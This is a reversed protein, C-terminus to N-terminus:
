SVFNFGGSWAGLNYSGRKTEALLGCVANARDDHAGPAHDISDRGGRSTRRELGVLQAVTVPDPPIEVQGSNFRSLADLYLESKPRASQSCTIGHKKFEDAPWSGAFRDSVIRTIGYSKFLAAYEAVIAAPTGRQGRVLDVVTREGARHGIAMTFEDKGGGAPDAFGHYTTGASCPVELPDPRAASEVVERSLFDSVDERFLGLWEARAGQPDEALAEEVVEAPLTPNFDRSAGQVVLVDGPKGYHRKWKDFLLGRRAYPSSIGVLLGGTTALGPVVARYLEVDPSASNEDRYFACEDLIAALLTRGRVAKFSNTHVEISVRNSLEVSEAGRKVILRSLMPSSELLGVVYGLAVKAQDRDVAIISVVGREGPKLKELLGTMEAGITGLYVAIGASTNTKASRRGAIVWLERVRREPAPRDGALKAFLEAQQATMPLAFAAALVARQAEWTEGEFSGPTLEGSDIFELINM